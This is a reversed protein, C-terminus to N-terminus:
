VTVIKCRAGNEMFRISEPVERLPFTHAVVPRVRGDEIFTTVVAM